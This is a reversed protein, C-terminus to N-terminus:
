DRVWIEWPWKETSFLTLDPYSILEVDLNCCLGSIQSMMLAFVVTTEKFVTGSELGIHAFNIGTKLSFPVFVM